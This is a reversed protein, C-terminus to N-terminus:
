GEAAGPVVLIPVPLYFYGIKDQCVSGLDVEIIHRERFILDADRRFEPHTKCEQM